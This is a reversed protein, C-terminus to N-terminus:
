LSPMANPPGSGHAFAEVVVRQAAHRQLWQSLAVVVLVGDQIGEAQAGPRIVELEDVFLVKLRQGHHGDDQGRVGRPHAIGAEVVRTGQMALLAQRHVSRQRRRARHDTSHAHILDVVLAGFLAGHGVGRSGEM